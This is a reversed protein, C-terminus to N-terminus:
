KTNEDYMAKLKKFGLMHHPKEGKSLLFARMKTMEIERKQDVSETEVNELNVYKGKVGELPPPQKPLTKAIAKGDAIAKNIVDLEKQKEELEENIEKKKEMGKSIKEEETPEKVVKEAAGSNSLAELPIDDIEIDDVPIIDGGAENVDQKSVIQWGQEPMRGREWALESFRGPVGNRSAMIIKTM